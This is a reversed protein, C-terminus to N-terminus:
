QNVTLISGPSFFHETTATATNETVLDAIELSLRQDLDTIAYCLLELLTVGPDHLNYDTWLHGSLAQLHGLGEARLTEWDITTTTGM